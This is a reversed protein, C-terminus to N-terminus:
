SNEVIAIEEETLDYLQYVLQDIEKDTKSIEFQLNNIETKYAKFYDEWEDQQVLSLKIKKKKLESVFTAFDYQHFSELKKSLKEARLNSQIRNLFRNVKTHISASKEMQSEVKELLASENKISEPIPIQEFYQPKVEIYGGSRVVCIQVLFYWVLKSNLIALISKDGTPLIVAPANIYRGKDDFCFKNKNQLNTWTIKPEEFLKYYDVSDQIEFWKYKGAKRGIKQDPSNRPTLREQYQLLWKKIGPFEEINTGRRTFVIFKDIIPSDWKNIDKGELFPKILSTDNQNVDTIVDKIKGNIIFAENFGTKIGYYCKSIVSRISPNKKLRKILQDEAESKFTWNNKDLSSQNIARKKNEFALKINSEDKPSYKCYHFLSSGKKSLTLIVPYTTTGKFVDVESFDDFAIFNTKEQLFHRLPTSSTTKNFDNTIFSLLGNTNFLHVGREYFYTFLDATGAFSQYNKELFPKIESLLEQRVYPPNGIVVDFGGKEFIDFFEREWNFAKEGAVKPDDILSNGCKINNNLSTLTRGKKATRLWLSLKAIDVAEENIDVGYLNNELISAEVDWFRFGAGELQAIRDDNDKHERILFDLAQNLFAGSGCAPDCITLSLLWDRYDHLTKFLAKGKTNLKRTKKNRYTDDIDLDVIELEMKKEECLKGVTNEVIYQTIYKPTYFVGDKKRKTKRKDITKGELEATIEEIENLSHEFIHGLINVDIETEFDYGSLLITHNQLINDTIKLNDLITDSDFLGGNYAFIKIGEEKDEYGTNIYSFYQKFWDYLSMPIKRKSTYEWDKITKLITNPPLLGKDEAFLIFLIRDILKQSKKFLVLKSYEPNNRVLDNLLATKFASYDKYLKQTVKQEQLASEEKLRRPVDGLIQDKHLCLYLVQFEEATLTFLNFDLFSSSDNIYFRLKEFNSTIVYVCTPHSHKYRFAQDTIKKLDKTKTSKLEIVGVAKGDKLIAGDAKKADKLNKFETTLNFNPNPNITYDLVKDFLNLLFSYQMQEEKDQRINRIIEPNHFFDKFKQYAQNVKELELSKLYKNLVSQQYLAM